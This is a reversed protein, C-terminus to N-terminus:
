KHICTVDGFIKLVNWSPWTGNNAYITVPAVYRTYSLVEAYVNLLHVLLDM